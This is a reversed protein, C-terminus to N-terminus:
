WQDFRTTVHGVSHARVKWTIVLDGAKGGGGGVQAPYLDPKM